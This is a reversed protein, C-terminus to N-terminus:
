VLEKCRRYKELFRKIEQRCIESWSIEPFKDMEAKLEAPIAITLNVRSRAM